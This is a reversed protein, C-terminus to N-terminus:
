SVSGVNRGVDIRLSVRFIRLMAAVKENTGIDAEVAMELLMTSVSVVGGVM